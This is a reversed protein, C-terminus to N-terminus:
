VDGGPEFVESEKLGLVRAVALVREDGAKPRDIGSTIKYLTGPSLGASYAIMYTPIGATRIAKLFKDSVAMTIEEM